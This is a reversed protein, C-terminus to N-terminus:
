VHLQGVAESLEVEQHGVGSQGLVALECLQHDRLGARVSVDRAPKPPPLPGARDRRGRLAGPILSVWALHAVLSGQLSTQCALSSDPRSRARRLWDSDWRAIVFRGNPSDVFTKGSARRALATTSRRVWRACMMSVPLSDQRKRWPMLRPLGLVQGGWRPRPLPVSKVSM